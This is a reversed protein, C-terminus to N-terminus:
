WPCVWFKSETHHYWLGLLSSATYYTCPPLKSYHLNDFTPNSFAYSHPTNAVHHQLTESMRFSTQINYKDDLLYKLSYVKM